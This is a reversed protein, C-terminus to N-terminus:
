NLRIARPCSIMRLPYPNPFCPDRSLYVPHSGGVVEPFIACNHDEFDVRVVSATRHIPMNNYDKGFYYPTRKYSPSRHLSAIYM